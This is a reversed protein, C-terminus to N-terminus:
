SASVQDAPERDFFTARINRLYANPSREAAIMDRGNRGKARGEAFHEYFDRVVDAYAKVTETESADRDILYGTRENLVESIGGVDAAIVPLAAGMAELIVNPVGDFASTYIFADFEALPLSCFRSYEGRYEIINCDNFLDTDFKELAPSGYVIIKLSIEKFNREIYKAIKIILDPRKQQDIRSAWLLKHTPLSETRDGSYIVEAKAPIVKYKHACLDLRASDHRAVEHNDCIILDLSGHCDTIFQTDYGVPTWGELTRTYMECFRYFILKADGLENHFRRVFNNSFESSKIHILANPACGQIIRLALTQRQEESLNRGIDYLDIFTTDSSLRSLWTHKEVHEGSIVLLKQNPRNKKIADIVDFIYKEGGGTLMFPILAVQQFSREDIIKCIKYYAEGMNPSINLNSFADIHDVNEIRICPEIYMASTALDRCVPSKFFSRKIEEYLPIKAPQPDGREAKWKDCLEVYTAPELFKSPRPIGNSQKSAKEMLSNNRIRYFVVTNKAVLMKCGAAWLEMNHHWDEFAYGNSIRADEFPIRTLIEKRCFIRSVYPHNEFFREPSIVDTSFMRYLWNKRDFALYFNPYIVSPGPTLEALDFFCVISNYSILDDADATMIYRGRSLKIGDNRSPGLSGNAVTVHRVAVFSLSRYTAVWNRTDDSPNDLVIVLEVKLGSHRAFDAAAELSLTTRKLFVAEDHLNLVISVDIQDSM